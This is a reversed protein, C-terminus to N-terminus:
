DPIPILSVASVHTLELPILYNDHAPASKHAKPVIIHLVSSPKDNKKRDNVGALIYQSLFFLAIAVVFSLNLKM